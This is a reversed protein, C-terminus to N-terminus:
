EAESQFHALLDTILEMSHLVLENVAITNREMWSVKMRACPDCISFLFQLM